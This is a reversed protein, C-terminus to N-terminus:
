QPSYRLITRQTPIAYRMGNETTVVYLTPEEEVQFGCDALLTRQAAPIRPVLPSLDNSQPPPEDVQRVVAAVTSPSGTPMDIKAPEGKGFSLAVCTGVIGLLLGAALTFSARVAAHVSMAARRGLGPEANTRLDDNPSLSAVPSLSASSSPSSVDFTERLAETLRRHEVIALVAERWGDPDLECQAVFTADADADTEGSAFRLIADEDWTKM